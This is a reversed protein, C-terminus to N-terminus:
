PTHCKLYPTLYGQWYLREDIITYWSTTKKIRKPKEPDEPLVGDTLYKWYPIMWNNDEAIQLVERKVGDINPVTLVERM